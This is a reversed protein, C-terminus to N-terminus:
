ILVLLRFVPQLCFHLLLLITASRTISPGIIEMVMYMMLNRMAWDEERVPSARLGWALAEHGLPNNCASWDFYAGWPTRPEMLGSELAQQFFGKVPPVSTGSSTDGRAGSASM